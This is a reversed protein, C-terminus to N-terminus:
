FLIDNEVSLEGRAIAALSGSFRIAKKNASLKAKPNSFKKIPKQFRYVSTVRSADLMFRMGFDMKEYASRRLRYKFYRSFQKPSFGFNAKKPAPIVSSNFHAIVKNIGKNLAKTDSFDGRMTFIFSEYDKTSKVNSIGKTKSLVKEINALEEDVVRKNPIKIGSVEEQNMMNALNEKSASLVITLLMDGSGDDKMNVEEVIEFCGGLCCMLCIFSLFKLTSKM